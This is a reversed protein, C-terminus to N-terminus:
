TKMTIMKLHWNTERLKNYVSMTNLDQTLSLTTDNLIIKLLEIM